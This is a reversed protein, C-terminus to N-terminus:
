CDLNETDKRANRFLSVNNCPTSFVSKPLTTSYKAYMSQREIISVEMRRRLTKGLNISVHAIECSIYMVSFYWNCDREFFLKIM